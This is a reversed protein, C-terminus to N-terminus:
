IITGPDSSLNPCIQELVKLTTFYWSADLAITVVLKRTCPEISIEADVNIENNAPSILLFPKLHQCLRDM